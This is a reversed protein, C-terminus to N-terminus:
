EQTIYITNIVDDSTLEEAISFTENSIKGIVTHKTIDQISLNESYTDLEEDSLDGAEAFINVYYKYTDLWILVTSSNQENSDEYLTVYGKDAEFDMKNAEKAFSYGSNLYGTASPDGFQVAYDSVVASIPMDNYWGNRALFIFNSVALPANEAYLEVEITGKSTEIEAKYEKSLDIKFEPCEAYLLNKYSFLNLWKDATTKSFSNSFPSYNIMLTPTASILGSDSAKKLNEKLSERMTEDQYDALLKETDIEKVAEKLNEIFWSEFKTESMSSWASQDEYLLDAAEFFYGQMGAAETLYAAALALKHSALPYHRFVIRVDDPHEKSYAKVDQYTYSCGPCQFDAYEIITMVANESGFVHDKETIEGILDVFYQNDSLPNSVVCETDQIVGDDDVTVKKLPPYIQNGDSDYIFKVANPDSDYEIEDSSSELDNEILGDPDVTFIEDACVASIGVFLVIITLFLSIINKM